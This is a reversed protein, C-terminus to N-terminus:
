NLISIYFVNISASFQNRNSSYSLYINCYCVECSIKTFHQQQMLTPSENDATSDCLITEVIHGEAIKTSTSEQGIKLSGPM